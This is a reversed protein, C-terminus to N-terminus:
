RLIEIWTTASGTRGSQRDRVAVRVQYLGQPLRLLQTWKVFRDNGSLAERPIELKQRFTSCV